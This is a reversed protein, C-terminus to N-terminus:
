NLLPMKLISPSHLGRSALINDGSHSSNFVILNTSSSPQSSNDWQKIQVSYGEGLLSLSTVYTAVCPNEVVIRLMATAGSSSNAAVGGYLTGNVLTVTEISSYYSCGFWCPFQYSMYSEYETQGTCTNYGDAILPLNMGFYLLLLFIFASLIIKGKRKM